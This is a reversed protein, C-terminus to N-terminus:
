ELSISSYLTYDNKQAVRYINKINLHFKWRNFFFVNIIIQHVRITWPTHEPIIQQDKRFNKYEQADKERVNDYGTSVTCLDWCLCIKCHMKPTPGGVTTVWLVQEAGAEQIPETVNAEAPFLCYKTLAPSDYATHPHISRELQIYNWTSLLVQVINTQNDFWREHHM